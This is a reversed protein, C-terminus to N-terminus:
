TKNSQKWAAYAKSMDTALDRSPIDGQLPNSASAVAEGIRGAFLDQSSAENTVPQARPVAPSKATSTTQCGTGLLAVTGALILAFSTTRLSM